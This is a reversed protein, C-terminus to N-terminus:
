LVQNISSCEGWGIKGKLYLFWILIVFVMVKDKQNTKKFRPGPPVNLPPTKDGTKGIVATNKSVGAEDSRGCINESFVRFSYENGIVLDSM